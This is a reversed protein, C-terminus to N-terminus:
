AEGSAEPEPELDPVLSKRLEEREAPTLPLFGLVLEGEEVALDAVRAPVRGYDLLRPFLILDEVRRDDLLSLLERNIALRVAADNPAGDDDLAARPELDGLKGRIADASKQRFADFASEPLPVRGAYAGDLSLRVRGEEGVEPLFHMSVVVGNFAPMRGAMVLQGDHVLLRPDDLHRAFADRYGNDDLWRGFYTDLEAGTFRLYAPEPPGPDEDSPDADLEGADDAARNQRSLTEGFTGQFNAVKREVSAIAALRDEGTLKPTRYFDPVANAGRYLYFAVGGAILLLLGLAILVGLLIRRGTRRRPRDAPAPSPM